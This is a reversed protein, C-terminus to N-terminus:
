TTDPEHTQWTLSSRGRFAMAQAQLAQVEEQVIHWVVAWDASFYKRWNADSGKLQNRGAIPALRARDPYRVREEPNNGPGGRIPTRTTPTRPSPASILPAWTM